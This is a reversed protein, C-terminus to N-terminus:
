QYPSVGLRMRSAVARGGKFAPTFRWGASASILFASAPSEDGKNALKASWVKGAEDIVLDLFVVSSSLVQEAGLRSSVRLYIPQPKIDVPSLDKARTVPPPDTMTRPDSKLMNGAGFEDSSDITKDSVLNYIPAHKKWRPRSTVTSVGDVESRIGRERASLISARMRDFDAPPWMRALAKWAEEERGSYLYCWVIELVKIKTTRLSHFEDATRGFMTQLKGDSSKFDSLHRADLQAELMTIQRDYQPQFESSVDLLRQNDFRLVVEPAFDLSSLPLNELGDVASADSTWIEVRGDLNTDAARFFDRGTITRLKRPPKTLSYVEYTILPDLDSKKVQFAVVPTGLDLDAGMVDIDVQWAEPEVLLHQGDWALDAQCTHRAFEGNRAAGVSVTVGSISKSTFRGIGQSCVTEHPQCKCAISLFCLFGSFCLTRVLGRKLTDAM